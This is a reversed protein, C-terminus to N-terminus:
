PVPSQVFVRTSVSIPPPMPPAMRSDFNPMNQGPLYGTRPRQSPALGHFGYPSPRADGGLNQHSFKRVLAANPDTIGPRSPPPQAPYQPLHHSQAFYGSPAFGGSYPPQATQTQSHTGDDRLSSTAQFVPQPFTSPTTPYQDHSLANTDNNPRLIPIPRNKDM